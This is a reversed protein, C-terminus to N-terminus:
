STLLDQSIRSSTARCCSLPITHQHHLTPFSHLTLTNYRGDIRRQSMFFDLQIFVHSLVDFRVSTYATIIKGQQSSRRILTARPDPSVEHPSAFTSLAIYRHHRQSARRNPCSMDRRFM